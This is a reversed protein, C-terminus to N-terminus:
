ITNEESNLGLIPKKDEIELDVTKEIDNPTIAKAFNYIAPLLNTLFFMFFFYITMKINSITASQEKIIKQMEEIENGKNPLFISTNNDLLFFFTLFVVYMGFFVFSYFLRSLEKQMPPLKKTQYNSFIVVFAFLVVFVWFWKDEFM